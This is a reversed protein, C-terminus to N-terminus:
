ASSLNGKGLIIDTLTFFESVYEWAVTLADLGQNFTFASASQEQPNDPLRVMFVWLLKFNKEFVCWSSSGIDMNHQVCQRIQKAPLYCNETTYQIRKGIATPFKCSKVTDVFNRPKDKGSKYKEWIPYKITEFGVIVKTILTEFGYLPQELRKVIRKEKEWSPTDGRVIKMSREEVLRTCEDAYFQALASCHYLMSGMLYKLPEPLDLESRYIELLRGKVAPLVFSVRLNENSGEALVPRVGLSTRVTSPDLVSMPDESNVYFWDGTKHKKICIGSEFTIKEFKQWPFKIAM